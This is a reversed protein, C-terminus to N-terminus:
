WLMREQPTQKEIWGLAAGDLMFARHLLWGGAGFAGLGVVMGGISAGYSGATKVTGAM